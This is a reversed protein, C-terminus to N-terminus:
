DIRVGTEKVVKGWKALEARLFAALEEPTCSILETGQSSVQEKVDPMNLVKLIEAHLRAIVERPTGAPAVASYWVDVVYGPLGSEALTPLEPAPAARKASTIALARLRGAKVQPAVANIPSFMFQTQGSLVGTTAETNGRHPVHVVNIGAMSSFLHAALHPSGGNGSSSYYLQGPRLKALAVLEKLNRVPLSPHVILMLPTSGMLTIPLFDKALDFTLNSYLSANVALPQPLFLLTYGDPAAKAAFAAGINGGAGVRNDIIVQQGLAVSLKQGIIRAFIDAGGGAAYPLILRVAKTPYQQASLGSASLMSLCGMAPLIITATPRRMIEACLM